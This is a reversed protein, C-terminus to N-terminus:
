TRALDEVLDAVAGLADEWFRPRTLDFGLEDMMELPSGNGGRELLERYKQAFREGGERYRRFLALVILQGFAYSYCYFCYWVFHPVTSWGIETGSALEVAEGFLKKQEALWLEGLAREDLRGQRCREHAAIEFRTLATQRFVTGYIEDLMDCLVQHRTAADQAAELLDQMVLLEAFVSATEALVTPAEYNFYSQKRALCYHIGHGLEHALTSVDRSKGTFNVLIYPHHSPDFAACFAGSIKGTRAEADVWLREFFDKALAGVAPSFKALSGLVVEKAEGYDLKKREAGPLPARLDANCLRRLGLLGAKIELYRQILPYHREIADLTVNVTALDLENELLSPALPGAFRRLGTEMRHNSLITNLVATFVLSHSAYTRFREELASRRVTPDPDELLALLEEEALERRTGRLEIQFRLSAAAREYLDVFAAPGVLDKQNIIREAEESLRHPAFRRKRLLHRRYNALAPDATISDFQASSLAMVELDLFLLENEIETFAEKARQDLDLAVANRTDASVLLSAYFAPRRAQVLIEELEGIAAALREGTLNGSAIQGRCASAFRRAKQKAEELDRLLRPDGPESYLDGLDWAPLHAAGGPSVGQTPETPKM